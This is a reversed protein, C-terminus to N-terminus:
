REKGQEIEWCHLIWILARHMIKHELRPKSSRYIIDELNKIWDEIWEVEIAQVTPALLIDETFIGTLDGCLYREILEDADILRKKILSM